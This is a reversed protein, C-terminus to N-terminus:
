YAANADSATNRGWSYHKLCLWRGNGYIWPRYYSTAKKKYLAKRETIMDMARNLAEGMPTGGGASFYQSPMDAVPRFRNHIKVDILM